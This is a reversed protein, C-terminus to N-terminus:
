LNLQIISVSLCVHGFRCANMGRVCHFCCVVVTAYLLYMISLSDKIQLPRVTDDCEVGTMLCWTDIVYLGFEYLGLLRLTVFSLFLLPTRKM